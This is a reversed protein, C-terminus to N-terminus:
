DVSQKAAEDLISFYVQPKKQITAYLEETTHALRLMTDEQWHGTQFQISIPLGRSDYGIPVAIGPVGILNGYLSFRFIEGIQQANFEGVAFAQAPIEPATIGTSPTAFADVKSLVNDLLVRAEPSMEDFREYYKDVNQAIESVITISHAVHISTLYHLPTEILTAGRAELAKLTKTVAVAIKPSSHNTYDSFYGIRVGKLSVTKEFSHLDVPPQTMGRPFTTADGGSMIAYGIAADRVSGAILGVHALSPCGAAASPIRQFTPKIGVVGCFSSPIRISGGGDVGLALPVLGSAVAAASGSSSGGTYCNPNYPNRVTGYHMNYGTVGLGFEQMNTTGLIIAGAARLRAVPLDDVMAPDEEYGLFSTGLFMRHGKVRIEDKIAVPVGDLVGLPEGRAYRDASAKAQALIEGNHKEVFLSLSFNSQLNQEVALLLAQIVQIPTVEGSTYRSTYDGITWHKFSVDQNTDQISKMSLADLLFQKKEAKKDNLIMPEQYPYYLPLDPLSAALKRVELVKNEKALHNFLIRGFVPLRSIYALVELPKGYLVPSSLDALDYGNSDAWEQTLENLPPLNVRESLMLLVSSLLVVLTVTAITSVM